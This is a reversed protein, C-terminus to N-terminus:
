VSKITAYLVRVAQQVYGHAFGSISLICGLVLVLLWSQGLDAVVEGIGLLFLAVAPVVYLLTVYLWKVISYEMEPDLNKLENSLILFNLFWVLIGAMAGIYWNMSFVVVGFWSAGACLILATVMPIKLKNM